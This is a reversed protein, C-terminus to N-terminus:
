FGLSFEREWEQLHDLDEQLSAADEQNSIVRYLLCDDAFLWATSSVRSNIYKLDQLITAYFYSLPIKTTKYICIRRNNPSEMPLSDVYFCCTM